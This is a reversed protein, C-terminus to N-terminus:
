DPPSYLAHKCGQGGATRGWHCLHGPHHLFTTWDLGTIPLYHSLVPGLVNLIIAVLGLTTTKWNAGVSM